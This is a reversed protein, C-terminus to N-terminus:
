YNSSMATWIIYSRSTVCEERMGGLSGSGFYSDVVFDVALGSSVNFPVVVVKQSGWDVEYSHTLKKDNEINSVGQCAAQLDRAVLLRELLAIVRISFFRCQGVTWPGYNKEYVKHAEIFDNMNFPHGEKVIGPKFYAELANMATITAPSPNRWNTKLQTDQSIIAALTAFDYTNESYDFGQPFKEQVHKAAYVEGHSPIALYSADLIKKVEKVTDPSATAFLAQYPSWNEYTRRNGALDMAYDQATPVNVFFLSPYKKAAAIVEEHNGQLVYELIRKATVVEDIDQRFFYGFTKELVHATDIKPATTTTAATTTTTTTTTKTNTSATTSGATSSDNNTLCWKFVEKRMDPPLMAFLGPNGQQQQQNKRKRSNSM